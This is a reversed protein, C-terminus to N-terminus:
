SASPRGLPRDGARRPPSIKVSVRRRQDHDGSQSHQSRPFAVKGWWPFLGVTAEGNWRGETLEQATGGTRYALRCLFEARNAAAQIGQAGARVVSTMILRSMYVREGEPTGKGTSRPASNRRMSNDALASPCNRADNVTLASTAALVWFISKRM